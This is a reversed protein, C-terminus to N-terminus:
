ARYAKGTKSDYIEIWEIRGYEPHYHCKAILANLNRKLAAVHQSPDKHAPYIYGFDDADANFNGTIEKCIDLVSNYPKDPAPKNFFKILFKKKYTQRQRVSKASPSEIIAHHNNNEADTCVAFHHEDSRMLVYRNRKCYDGLMKMAEEKAVGFGKIFADICTPHGLHTPAWSQIYRLFEEKPSKAAPASDLPNAGRQSAYAERYAKALADYDASDQAAINRCRERLDFIEKQKAVIEKQKADIKNELQDLDKRRAARKELFDRTAAYIAAVPAADSQM